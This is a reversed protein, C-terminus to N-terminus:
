PVSRHCQLTLALLFSFFFCWALSLDWRDSSCRPQGCRPSGVAAKPGPAGRGAGGEVGRVQEWWGPAPGFGAPGPSGGADSRALGEGAEARQEREKCSLPM